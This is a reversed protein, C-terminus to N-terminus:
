LILMADGYSFFRFKRQIAYAYAKKALAEGMFACILIFLTSKPLHFNTLLHDVYKFCYGPKIFINTEGHSRILQGSESAASELTRLTTTGVTITKGKIKQNLRNQVDDPIFYRETHMKHESINECQIPHFTGLGVHLTVMEQAVGKEKLSKLLEDTFHLGATPAAISGREKAYITQYDKKDQPNSKERKIYPPLPIQGIEDIAEFLPKKSAFKLVKSSILDEIVVASLDESFCLTNGERIKRGPRALAEWVGEEREHTLLIEAQAGNERLGILRAPFVKSNNFVLRDGADLFSSLDRFTTESIEKTERNVILLRSKDRQEAPSQAILEVPLDFDFQSLTM